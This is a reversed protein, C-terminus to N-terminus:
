RLQRWDRLSDARVPELFQSTDGYGGPAAVSTAERIYHITFSGGDVPAITVNGLDDDSGAKQYPEGGATLIGNMELSGTVRIGGKAAYVTGYRSKVNSSITIADPIRALSMLKSNSYVDVMEDYISGQQTLEYQATPTDTYTEVIVVTCGLNQILGQNYISGSVYVINEAPNTSTPNLVLKTGPEVTVMGDIRAPANITTTADKNGTSTTVPAAFVTTKANAALSTLWASQWSDVVASSAFPHKTGMQTIENINVVYPTSKKIWPGASRYNKTGNANGLGSTSISYDYADKTPESAVLLHGQVDVVDPRTISNKASSMTQWSIGENGLIHAEKDVSNVDYTHVGQDSVIHVQNNANIAGPFENYVTEATGGDDVALVRRIKFKAKVVSDVGNNAVGLGEVEIDYTYQVSTGGFGPAPQVRDTQVDTVKASYQGMGKMNGNFMTSMISSALTKSAKKNQAVDRCIRDYLVNVGSEALSNAETKLAGRHAMSDNTTSVGVATIAVLGVVTFFMMSIPLSGGFLKSRTKM